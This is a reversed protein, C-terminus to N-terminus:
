WVVSRSSVMFKRCRSVPATPVRCIRRQHKRKCDLLRSDSSYTFIAEFRQGGPPAYPDVGLVLRLCRLETQSEAAVAQASESAGLLSSWAAVAYWSMTVCIFRPYALPLPRPAGLRPPLVQGPLAHALTM